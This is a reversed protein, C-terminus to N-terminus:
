QRHRQLLQTVPMYLGNLLFSFIHESNQEQQGSQYTEPQEKFRNVKKFLYLM